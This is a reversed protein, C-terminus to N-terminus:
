DTAHFEGAKARHIIFPQCVEVMGHWCEEEDYQFNGGGDQEGIKDRTYNVPDFVGVGTFVCGDQARKNGAGIDDM